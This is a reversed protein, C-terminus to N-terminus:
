REEKEAWWSINEPRTLYKKKYLQTNSIVNDKVVPPREEYLIDLFGLM